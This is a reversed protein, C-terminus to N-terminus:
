KVAFLVKCFKVQQWVIHCTKEEMRDQNQPLNRLLLRRRIKTVKAAGQAKYV